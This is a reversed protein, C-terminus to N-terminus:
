GHAARQASASGQRFYSAPVRRDHRREFGGVTQKGGDLRGAPNRACRGGRRAGHKATVVRMPPRLALRFIGTGPTTKKKFETEDQRPPQGDDGWVYFNTDPSAGPKPAQTFIDGMQEPEPAFAPTPAPAPPAVPMEMVPAATDAQPFGFFLNPINEDVQVKQQGGQKQRALFLPAIVRLPLDLMMGDHASVSPLTAPRIWSRIVKWPFAIKGQRLAPEVLRVPLGLQVESLNLQEIENHLVDPWSESLVALPVNLVVEPAPPATVPRAVPVPVPVPNRGIGHGNGNGNGNSPAPTRLRVPVPIPSPTAGVGRPAPFVPRVPPVPSPTAKPTPPTPTSSIPSRFPILPAPTNNVAPAPPAVPAALPAPPVPPPTFRVPQAPRPVAAAQPVPAAPMQTERPAVPAPTGTITRTDAFKVGSTDNGFPGHVDEPVEVQRQSQRRPLFAPNIQPLIENLPLIIEVQDRDTQVTFVNPALQRLEGYSIKVAGGALQALVRQVPLTVFIESVLTQKIRTKLELPLVGIIAYLPIQVVNANPQPRPVSVPAPPRPAPAPAQAVQQAYAPQAHQSAPAMPATYGNGNHNAENETAGSGFLNKFFNLM